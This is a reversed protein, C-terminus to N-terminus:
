YLYAVTFATAIMSTKGQLESILAYYIALDICSLFVESHCISFVIGLFIQIVRPLITWAIKYVCVNGFRM